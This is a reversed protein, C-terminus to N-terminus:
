ARDSGSNNWWRKSATSVRRHQPSSSGTSRLTDASHATPRVKRRQVILHGPDSGTRVSWASRSAAIQTTSARRFEQDNLYLLSHPTDRKPQMSLVEQATAQCEILVILAGRYAARTPPTPGPKPSTERPAHAGGTTTAAARDPRTLADPTQTKGLDARRSPTPTPSTM